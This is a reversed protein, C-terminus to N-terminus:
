EKWWVLLELLAPGTDKRVEMDRLLLQVAM